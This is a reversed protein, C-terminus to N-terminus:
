ELLRLSDKYTHKISKFWRFQKWMMIIRPVVVEQFQGVVMNTVLLTAVQLTLEASCGTAYPADDSHYYCNDHLKKDNWLIAGRKFFAIYFLSTYSNIFQFM